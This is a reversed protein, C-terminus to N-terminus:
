AATNQIHRFIAPHSKSKRFIQITGCNQLRSQTCYSYHAPFHFPPPPAVVPVVNIIIIIIIIMMMMMM